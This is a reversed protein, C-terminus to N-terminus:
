NDLTLHARPVASEGMTLSAANWTGNSVVIDQNWIKFYGTSNLVHGDLNIGFLSNVSYTGRAKLNVITVDNALYFSTKKDQIFLEDATGSANPTWNEDADFQCYGNDGTWKAGAPSFPFSSEALGAFSFSLVVSAIIVSKNM